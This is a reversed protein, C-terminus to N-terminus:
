CLQIAPIYVKDIIESDGSDKAQIVIHIIHGSYNELLEDTGYLANIFNEFQYEEGDQDKLFNKESDMFKYVLNEM